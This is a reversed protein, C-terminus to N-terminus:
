EKVPKVDILDIIKELKKEGIGKIGLLDETKEYPRGNIIAQAITKSLGPLAELEELTASNVDVKGGGVTILEQIKELTKPGIGKINLLDDIKEYPRSDIIAQAVTENIGSLAALEELTASNIDVKKVAPEEPSAESESKGVVILDKIKEFTKEGIGKVSKIDEPKEYPRGDIIRQAITDGIGPLTRLEESTATNIDIQQAIVFGASIVLISLVMVITTFFKRQM